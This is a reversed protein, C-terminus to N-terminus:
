RRHSEGGCLGGDFKRVIRSKLWERWWVRRGDAARTESMVIARVGNRKCWAFAARADVTGWGAVAVADPKLDDLARFIGRRLEGAPIEEFVRDPFVTRRSFGAGASGTREWDYTADAGATELAVVGWGRPGLVEM